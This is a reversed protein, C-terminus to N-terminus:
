LITQLALAMRALWLQTDWIPCAKSLQLSICAENRQNPKKDHKWNKEKAKILNINHWVRM